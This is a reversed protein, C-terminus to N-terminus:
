GDLNAMSTIGQLAPVELEGTPSNSIQTRVADAGITLSVHGLFQVEREPSIFEVEPLTSLQNIVDATLSVSITNLKTFKRKIRAGNAALMQRATVSPEDKFQIIVKILGSANLSSNGQLDESIKETPTKEELKTESEKSLRQAQILPLAGSLIAILSLFCFVYRVVIKIINM